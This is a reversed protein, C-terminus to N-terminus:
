VWDSMTTNLAGHSMERNGTPWRTDRLRPHVKIKEWRIERLVRSSSGLGSRGHMRTVDFSEFAASKVKVLDTRGSSHGVYLTPSLVRIRHRTRSKCVKPPCQEVFLIRQFTHAFREVGLILLKIVFGRSRHGAFLQFVAALIHAACESSQVRQFFLEVPMRKVFM